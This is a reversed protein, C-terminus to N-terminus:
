AACPKSEGSLRVGWGIVLVPRESDAVLDLLRTIESARPAPVPANSPPPASFHQLSEVDIILRQLDDPIDILVPGPRGSIAIYTAKELEYAIQAPDKIMVAYKTIPEVM